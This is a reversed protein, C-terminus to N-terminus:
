IAEFLTSFLKCREAEADKGGRDIALFVSGLDGSRQTEQDGVTHGPRVRIGNAGPPFLPSVVDLRGLENEVM